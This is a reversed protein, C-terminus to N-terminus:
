VQGISSVLSAKFESIYGPCVVFKHDEQRLMWTGLNCVHVVMDLERMFHEISNMTIFIKVKNRGKL